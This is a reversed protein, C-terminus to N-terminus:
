IRWDVEVSRKRGTRDIFYVAKHAVGFEHILKTVKVDYCCYEAIELFRGERFWRIADLGEAIKGVGLTGRAVDELKLRYGVSKEIEVMLDLTPLFDPLSLATYGMLVAYDFDLVNYGVVLSARRLRDVLEHVRSESFIQYKGEISSYTVGVSMRMDAKRHSGGVDNFTRQTELDFYVIDM